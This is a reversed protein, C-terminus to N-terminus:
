LARLCVVIQFREVVCALQRRAGVSLELFEGRVLVSQQSVRCGRVRADLEVFLKM